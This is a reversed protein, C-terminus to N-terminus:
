KSSSPIKDPVTIARLTEAWEPARTGRAVATRLATQNDVPKQRDGRADGLRLLRVTAYTKGGGPSRPM